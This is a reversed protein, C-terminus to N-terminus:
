TSPRFDPRRKAPSCTDFTTCLATTDHRLPHAFQHSLPPQPRTHLSHSLGLTLIVIHLCPHQATSATCIPDVATGQIHFEFGLSIDGHTLHPSMCCVALHVSAAQDLPMIRAEPALPGPNLERLLGNLDLRLSRTEPTTCVDLMQSMYGELAFRHM